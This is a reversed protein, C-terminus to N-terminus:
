IVWVAAQAAGALSLAETLEGATVQASTNDALVWPVTAGTGAANLAIIGRAMRGQSEEDGDFLRGSSTTVRINAVLTTRKTKEYARVAEAGMTRAALLSEADIGLSTAAEETLFGIDPVGAWSLNALTQDSCGNLGTISGWVDPVQTYDTAVKRKLDCLFYFNTNKM